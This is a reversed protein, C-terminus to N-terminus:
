LWLCFRSTSIYSRSDSHHTQIMCRYAEVKEYSVVGYIDLFVLQKFQNVLLFLDEEFIVVHEALNFLM